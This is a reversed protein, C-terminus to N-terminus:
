RYDIGYRDYLAQNPIKYIERLRARVPEPLAPVSLGSRNIKKVRQKLPRRWSEPVWRLLPKAWFLLRPLWRFRPLGTQNEPRMAVVCAPLGLFGFVEDCVAQPQARLREFTLVCIQKQPFIKELGELHDAYFGRGVYDTSRRLFGSSFHGAPRDFAAREFDTEPEYGRSQAYWFASWAREAPERLVVILKVAPNHEHLLRLAQTNEFLGVHKILTMKGSHDAAPFDKAFAQGFSKQELRERDIFYTFEMGRQAQIAPHQGLWRLLSTTGAKQVGIIAVDIRGAMDTAM